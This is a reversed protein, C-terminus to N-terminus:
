KGKKVEPKAYQEIISRLILQESTSILQEESETISLLKYMLQTQEENMYIRDMCYGDVVYVGGGYRGSQTYIPVSLSLAEIDRRITRDSVGFESALNEVTEHRRRCLLTLLKNRRDTAGMTEGGKERIRITFASM